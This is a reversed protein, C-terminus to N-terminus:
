LLKVLFIGVVAIGLGIVGILIINRFQNLFGTLGGKPPETIPRKASRSVTFQTESAHRSYWFLKNQADVIFTYKGTDEPARIDVKGVGYRFVSPTVNQTWIEQGQHVLTFGTSSWPITIGDVQLRIPEGPLIAEGYGLTVFGSGSRRLVTATHSAPVAREALAVPRGMVYEVM